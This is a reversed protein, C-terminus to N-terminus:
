MTLKILTITNNEINILNQISEPIEGSFQNNEIRLTTLNDLDVIEFLDISIEHKVENNMDNKMDHKLDHKMENKMENKM